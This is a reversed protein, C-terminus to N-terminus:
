WPKSWKSPLTDHVVCRAAQRVAECEERWADVAAGHRLRERQLFAKREDATECARYEQGFWDGEPKPPYQVESRCVCLPHASTPKRGGRHWALAQALTADKPPAPMKGRLRSM